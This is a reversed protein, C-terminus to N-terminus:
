RLGGSLLYTAGADDWWSPDTIGIDAFGDADLDGVAGVTLATDFEPTSRIRVPSARQVPM